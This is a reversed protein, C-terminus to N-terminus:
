TAAVTCRTSARCRATAGVPRHVRVPIPPEGAVIHDVREVGDRGPLEFPQRVSPLVEASMHDFPILEIAEAVLPDLPEPPPVPTM